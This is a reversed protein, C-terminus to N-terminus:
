RVKNSEVRYDGMQPMFIIRCMEFLRSRARMGIVETLTKKQVPGGGKATYQIVPGTIAEDPLNTTVITPKRHNCRYAIISEITDQVWELTRQAGLDDLVLVECDLAIQYVERNSGAAADWGKQIRTILDIYDFFVCEHGRAILAKMIGITLHTKGEGPNGVFLLGPRDPAPFERVYKRVQMLVSGLGNRVIPNHEPLTFNDLTAKEYNPPINANQLLRESNNSLACECRAAGSLGSREVIKWGTGGCQACNPDAM